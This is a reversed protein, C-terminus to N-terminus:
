GLAKRYQVFGPREAVRDYLLMAGANSEHTLWHLRSCNAARAVAEAHGILARGVGRGRGGPAVFLDQLYCHNGVTWTSRHLVHHVLGVAGDDGHAPAGGMPEGPDILREWTVTSVAEPIDVGYLLQYGRWLPMWAARDGATLPEIRTM